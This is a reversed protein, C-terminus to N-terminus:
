YYDNGEEKRNMQKTRQINKGPLYLFKRRREEGGSRKEKERGRRESKKKGKKEARVDEVWIYFSRSLGGEQLIMEEQFVSVRVDTNVTIHVLPKYLCRKKISAALITQALVTFMVQKQWFFFPLFKTAM